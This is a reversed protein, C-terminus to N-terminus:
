FVVGLLSDKVDIIIKGKTICEIKLLDGTYVNNMKEFRTEKSKLNVHGNFNM